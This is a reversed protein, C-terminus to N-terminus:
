EGIVEWRVEHAMVLFLPTIVRNCWAGGDGHAVLETVVAAEESSIAGQIYAEAATADRGSGPEQQWDAPFCAAPLPTGLQKGKLILAQRLWAFSPTPPATLDLPHRSCLSICEIPELYSDRVQHENRCHVRFDRLSVGLPAQHGCGACAGACTSSLEVFAPAHCCCWFLFWMAEPCHRVNAAETWILFYLSLECLMLHCGAASVVDAQQQQMSLQHPRPHLQVLPCWGAEYAHFISGHLDMVCLAFLADAPLQSSQHQADSGLRRRLMGDRVLSSLHDAAVFATAPTWATSSATEIPLAAAEPNFVQFGFLRAVQSM